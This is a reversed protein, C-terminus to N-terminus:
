QPDGAETQVRAQVAEILRNITVYSAMGVTAVLVLGVGLALKIKLLFPTASAM